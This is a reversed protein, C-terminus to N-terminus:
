SREDDATLRELARIENDTLCLSKIFEDYEVVTHRHPKADAKFATAKTTGTQRQLYAILFQIKVDIASSLGLLVNPPVSGLRMRADRFGALFDRPLELRRALARLGNGSLAASVIAIGHGLEQFDLDEEAVTSGAANALGIMTFEHFLDTLDVAFEPFQRIYSGLVEPTLDAEMAFDSLINEKNAHSSM